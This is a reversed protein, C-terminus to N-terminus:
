KRIGGPNPEETVGPLKPAVYVSLEDVSVGGERILKTKCSSLQLKRSKQM